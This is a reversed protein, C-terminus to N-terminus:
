DSASSLASPTPIITVTGDAELQVYLKIPVRAPRGSSYYIGPTWKAQEVVINESVFVTELQSKIWESFSTAEGSLLDLRPLYGTRNVVGGFVLISDGSAKVGSAQYANTITHSVADIEGKFRPTFMDFNGGSKGILQYSEYGYYVVSDSHIVMWTSRSTKGPDNDGDVYVATFSPTVFNIPSYLKRFLYADGEFEMDFPEGHKGDTLTTDFQLYFTTPPNAGFRARISKVFPYKEFFANNSTDPQVINWSLRPFSGVAHPERNRQATATFLVSVSLLLTIIAHKTM